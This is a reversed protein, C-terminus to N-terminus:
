TLRNMGGLSFASGTSDARHTRKKVQGKSRSVRSSSGVSPSPSHERSRTAGEEGREDFLSSPTERVPSMAVARDSTDDETADAADPVLGEGAGAGGDDDTGPVAELLHERYPEDGFSPDYEYGMVVDRMSDPFTVPLPLLWHWSLNPGDIGGFMENFESTVRRLETVDGRGSEIKMRAIKSTNSQVADIQEILMCCTFFMFTVTIIALIIVHYSDYLRDCGSYAYTSDASDDNEPEINRLVRLFSRLNPDAENDVDGTSTANSDTPIEDPTADDTHDHDPKLANTSTFGCRVYRILLLVISLLSTLFTYFIFLVFFKHNLAGVANCVWPCYHDMKVICRGTVSDHHARPPKYNDNCKRCRRIGRRRNRLTSAAVRDHLGGGAELRGNTVTSAAGREEGSASAGALKELDGPTPVPLPRAGMPVAGPDTTWAMVLSAVALAATPAYGIGFLLQAPLSHSILRTAIVALAYGHASFSLAICIIGCPDLSLWKKAGFTTGVLSLCTESRGM